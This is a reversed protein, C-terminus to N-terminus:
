TTLSQPKKFHNPYASYLAAEISQEKFHYDINYQHTMDLLNFYGWESNEIDGGLIAYGYMKAKRDFECIFIDTSCYFYHFIAPHEKMDDTGGIKPCKELLAELRKIPEYFERLNRKTTHLQAVPIIAAVAAPITKLTEM